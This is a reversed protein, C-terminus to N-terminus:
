LNTAHKIKTIKNANEFFIIIIDIKKYKVDFSFLKFAMYKLYNILYNYIQIIIM